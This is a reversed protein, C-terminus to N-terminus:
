DLQKILLWADKSDNKRIAALNKFAEYKDAYSNYAVQTLGWKNKGIIYANYGKQKLLSVKKSANEEFQFAGAILHYPKNVEKAVALEITPLPNSIVFTASQIKEQLKEQQISYEKKQEQQEYGKWGLGGLTLIIAATAAYKIISPIEIKNSSSELSVVKTEKRTIENKTFSSFGFSSTLYNAEQNPEFVVQQNSNLQLKGINPITLGGAQLQQNWSQVTNAIYLNAQEFSISEIAAIENALLGDNHTLSANFGLKKYPPFFINKDQIRAGIKNSIFAGFGTVIVCDHRYLLNQIHTTIQM